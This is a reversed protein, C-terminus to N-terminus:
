KNEHQKKVKLEQEQLELKGCFTCQPPLNLRPRMSMEWYEMEGMTLENGCKCKM